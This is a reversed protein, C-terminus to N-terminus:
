RSISSGGSQGELGDRAIRMEREGEDARGLRLYARGLLLHANWDRPDLSVAKELHASAEALSGLQLLVRGLETRARGNSPRAKVAQTLPAIAEGARGQRFLFAGYDIRPDQDPPAQGRDNKISEKFCREAENTQELAAHNLGMVRQARWLSDRRAARVAKELPAVAADYRNLAYLDKGLYYCSDPDEPGLECARQLPRLAADLKGAAIYLGGMMKWAPLFKPDNKLSKDLALRAEELRGARLHIAGLYYSIEPSGSQERDLVTLKQFAADTRGADLDALADALPNELAWCWSWGALALVVLRM